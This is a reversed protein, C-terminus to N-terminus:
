EDEMKVGCNPCHRWKPKEETNYVRGCRSCTFHDYYIAIVADGIMSRGTEKGPMWKGTMREPEASPLKEIWEELLCGYDDYHMKCETCATIGDCLDQYTSLAFNRDILDAM